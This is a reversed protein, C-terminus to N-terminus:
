GVLVVDPHLLGDRVDAVGILGDATFVAAPGAPSSAAAIKQGTAFRQAEEAPLIVAPLHALAERMPRLLQPRLAFVAPDLDRLPLAEEVKWDGIATRRLASLHARTGLARGADRAISRVYTGSSCEVTVAAEGSSADFTSLHLGFITVKVPKLVPMEGRRVKKYAREGDVKKASVPPPLQEEQRMVDALAREVDARSKSRWSEDREGVVEGEADGTTTEWGFRITGEYRKPLLAIFRALRTARGVLVV